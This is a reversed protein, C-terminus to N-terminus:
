TSEQIGLFCMKNNIYVTHYYYKYEFCQRLFTNLETPRFKLEVFQKKQLVTTKLLRPIPRSM